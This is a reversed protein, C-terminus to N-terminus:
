PRSEVGKDRALFVYYNTDEIQWWGTLRAHARVDEAVIASVGTGLFAEVVRTQLAVDGLWFDAADEGLMETVIQVQALRAWHSDFGYGIVRVQDRPRVGWRWLAEAVEGPWSPPRALTEARVARLGGGFRLNVGNLNLALINILGFALMVGGLTAAVKRGWDSAPLRVHALLEAWFLVVFAGIYRGEVLIMSYSGFAALAPGLLSWNRLVDRGRLRPRQSLGYLVLVGAAVGGRQRAFLDFCAACGPGPRIGWTSTRFSARTGTGLILQGKISSVAAIFPLTVAALVAATIAHLRIARRMDRMSLVSVAVFVWALPFLMAKALYGLGIM